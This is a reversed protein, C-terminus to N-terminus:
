KVVMALFMRLTDMRVTPAFTESYDIGHQQSFGRAVLRAKFREVGGTPLTKVDFVWKTSVLNAGDPLVFEEWTGNTILTKLEEDIAEKWKGAHERDKLAEKYTRPIAIGEKVKVAMALDDPHEQECSLAALFCKGIKM